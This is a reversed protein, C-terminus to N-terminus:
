GPNHINFLMQDNHSHNQTNHKGANLVFATSCSIQTHANLRSPHPPSPPKRVEGISHVCKQQLTCSALTSLPNSFATM